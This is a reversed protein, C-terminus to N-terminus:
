SKAPPPPSMAVFVILREEGTNRLSHVVDAPAFAFDGPGVAQIEGGVTLEGRGELVLYSKDRECHKHPEHEQGPEFANLGCFLHSGKALDAKGMKDERFRAREVSRKVIM